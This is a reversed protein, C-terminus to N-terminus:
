EGSQVGQNIQEIAGMVLNVAQDRHGGFDPPAQQLESLSQQLDNRANWMHPGIASAAGAGLIGFSTATLVGAVILRFKSIRLEIGGAFTSLEGIRSQLLEDRRCPHSV